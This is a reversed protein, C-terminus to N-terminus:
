SKDSGYQQAYYQPEETIVCAAHPELVIVLHIETGICTVAFKYAADELDKVCECEHRKEIQETHLEFDSINYKSEEAFKGELKIENMTDEAVQEAVVHDVFTNLRQM